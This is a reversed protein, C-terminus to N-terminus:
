YVRIRYKLPSNETLNGVVTMEIQDGSKLDFFSKQTINGPTESYVSSNTVEESSLNFKIINGKNDALSLLYGNAKNPDPNLNVIKAIITFSYSFETTLNGNASLVGLTNNLKETMVTDLKKTKELVIQSKDDKIYEPLLISTNKDVKMDSERESFREDQKIFLFYGGISLIIFIVALSIFIVVSKVKVTKDKGYIHLNQDM